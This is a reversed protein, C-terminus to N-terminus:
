VEISITILSLVTRTLAIPKTTPLLNHLSVRQHQVISSCRGLSIGVLTVKNSSKGLTRKKKSMSATNGGSISKHTLISKM